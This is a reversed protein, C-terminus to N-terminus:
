PKREIKMAFGFPTGPQGTRLGTAAVKKLSGKKAILGLEKEVAVLIDAGQVRGSVTLDDNDISLNDIDLGRGARPPLQVPLREAMLLVFDMASTYNDLKALTERNKLAKNESEITRLIGDAGAQAGKLGAVTKAVETIQEESQEALSLSMSERMLAYVFFIVFMAAAIQATNKWQEWFLRVSENSKAFIGRRLNIGPHSPKRFGELALGIATASASEVQSNLPTKVQVRGTSTLAGFYEFQNVAVELSQTLWPAFNQIQSTGGTLRLDRIDSGVSTRLDLLTLRLERILPAASDSIAKHMAMQDRTAGNTNLLVFSKTQLVKIAEVYPVKFISEIALAVDHGGWQIARIAVPKGDRYVVLVTRSHGVQLIAHSAQVERAASVGDGMAVTLPNTPPSAWWSDLVNSLALGEPSIMSAEFGGDKARALVEAVPEHPCAVALVDSANAFIEIFRADFITEATDFPIDEELEFPLSKLIKAREKFPFRKLRVSVNNQPLGIIWKADKSSIQASFNRLTEIIELSRDRTPDMSLPMEWLQNISVGRGSGELEAIKISSSGIDVGLCKM